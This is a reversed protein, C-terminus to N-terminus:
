TKFETDDMLLVDSDFLETYGGRRIFAPAYVLADKYEELIFQEAAEAEAGTEYERDLLVDYKLGCGRMRQAVTKGTIGIKYFINHGDSMKLYYLRAPKKRNFGMKVCASCGNGNIIDHPKVSWVHGCDGCRHDIKTSMGQYVELPKYNVGELRSLYEEHTLKAKGSCKACGSGNLVSYPAKATQHGLVCEHLIPTKMGSYKEVPWLDIEADCLRKEYGEHNLSAGYEACSPCKTKGAMTRGRDALFEHGEACRYISKPNNGSPYTMAVFPIDKDVLKKNHKEKM